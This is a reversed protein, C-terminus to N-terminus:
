PHLRGDLVFVLLLFFCIFHFSVDFKNSSKNCIMHWNLIETPFFFFFFIATENFCLILTVFSSWKLWYNLLNQLFFLFSYETSINSAGMQYRYYRIVHHYGTIFRIFQETPMVFRRWVFVMIISACCLHLKSHRINTERNCKRKTM